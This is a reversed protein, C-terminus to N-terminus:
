RTATTRHRGTLRQPFQKFFTADRLSIQSPARVKASLMDVLEQLPQHRQACVDRHPQFADRAGRGAYPVTQLGVVTGVQLPYLGMPFQGNVHHPKPVVGIM